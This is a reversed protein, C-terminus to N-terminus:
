NEIILDTNDEQMKEWQWRWFNVKNIGIQSNFYDM